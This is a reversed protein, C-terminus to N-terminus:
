AHPMSQAQFEERVTLSPFAERRSTDSRVYLGVSGQPSSTTKLYRCNSNVHHRQFCLQPLFAASSNENVTLAGRMHHQRLFLIEGLNGCMAM